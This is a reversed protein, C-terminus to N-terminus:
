SLKEKRRWLRLFVLVCLIVILTGAFDGAAMAFANQPFDRWPSLGLAAFALNHLCSSGVAVGLGILPLHGTRLRELTAGTGLIRCTLRLTGYAGIGAVAAIVVMSTIDLAQFEAGLCLFAGLSIGAAAWGGGAMLLLLRLGAPLFILSIGPTHSAFSMMWANAHYIGVWALASLGFLAINIKWSDSM